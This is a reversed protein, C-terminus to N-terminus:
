CHGDLHLYNKLLSVVAIGVEAPLSSQNDSTEVALPQRLQLMDFLGAYM